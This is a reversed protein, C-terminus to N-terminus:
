KGWTCIAPMPASGVSGWGLDTFAVFLCVFLLIVSSLLRRFLMTADPLAGRQQQGVSSVKV